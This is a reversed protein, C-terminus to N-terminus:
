GGCYADSFLSRQPKCKGGYVSEPIHRLFEETVVENKAWYIQGNVNLGEKGRLVEDRLSRGDQVADKLTRQVAVV